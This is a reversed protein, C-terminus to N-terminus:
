KQLFHSRIILFESMRVITDSKFLLDAARAKEAMNSTNLIFIADREYWASDIVNNNIFDEYAKTKKELFPTNLNHSTWSYAPTYVTSLTSINNDSSIILSSYNTNKGLWSLVEMQEKSVYVSVQTATNKRSYNVLWLINDNFFIVIFVPLLIMRSNKKLFNLLWELGPLGALFLSSWVYGRTFHVPVIAPMFLEHKILLFAVFFWCAFLRNSRDNLFVRLSQSRKISLFVLFGVTCYAPLLAYNDVLLRILTQQHVSHHDPYQNLFILYYWIHGIFILFITAGFWLPVEKNRKFIIEVFTWCGIISLFEIGTYPHSLSLVLSLLSAALWKKKLICLIGGFFLAHYYAETSFILSRGFNLGWWGWAPDFVFLRDWVDLGTLSVFPLALIGAVTLLGGGWSFLTISLIRNRSDPVLYDFLRIIIRFSVYSFLLTFVILIIGPPLGVKLLFVFIFNQPQFYIKSYNGSDNFPNSYFLSFHDADQYQKAYAIYTFNDYQLFGPAMHDGAKLYYAIVFYLVPLTLLLALKWNSIKKNTLIQRLSTQITVSKL